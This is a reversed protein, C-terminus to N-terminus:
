RAAAIAAAIADLTAQEEETRVPLGVFPLMETDLATAEFTTVRAEAPVDFPTDVTALGEDTGLNGSMYVDGPYTSPELVVGLDPLEESAFFSGVINVDTPVVGDLERLRLGYGGGFLKWEFVISNVIDLQRVAGRVQPNREHNYAYVNHHLSIRERTAGAGSWSITTPHLSHHLMSWSLTVDRVNGWMDPSGDSARICVLHDLVIRYVGEPNNEGDITITASNQSHDEGGDWVGDFRLYRIILDHPHLGSARGAIKVEGDETNVKTITIGPSPATSGDITLFPEDITIDSQLTITGGVAFEVVRPTVSEGSGVRSDICDRLSGEGSDDLTTVTCVDGGVGGVSVAGFGEIDMPSVEGVDTAADIGPADVGPADVVPVDLAVDTATDSGADTSATSSDDGCAVLLAFSVLVLRM